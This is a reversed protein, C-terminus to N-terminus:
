GYGVPLSGCGSVAIFSLSVCALSTTECGLGYFVFGGSVM